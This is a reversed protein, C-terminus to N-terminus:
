KHSTGPANEPFWRIRARLKEESDDRRLDDRHQHAALAPKHRCKGPSDNAKDPAIIQRPHYDLVDHFEPNISNEVGAMRPLPGEKLRESDGDCARWLSQPLCFFVLVIM